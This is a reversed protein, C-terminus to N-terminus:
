KMIKVKNTYVFESGDDFCGNVTLPYSQEDSFGGGVLTVTSNATLNPLLPNSSSIDFHFNYNRNVELSSDLSVIPKDSVNRLTIRVIPGGPNVPEIPGEVSV